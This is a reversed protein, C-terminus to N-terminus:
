FLSQVIASSFRLRNIFDPFFDLEHSVFKRDFCHCFQELSDFISHTLVGLASVPRNLTLMDENFIDIDEDIYIRDQFNNKQWTLFQIFKQNRGFFVM